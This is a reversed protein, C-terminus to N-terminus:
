LYRVQGEKAHFAAAVSNPLKKDGAQLYTPMGATGGSPPWTTVHRTTGILWELLLQRCKNVIDQSDPDKYLNTKELPDQELNYLEGIDQNDFTEPQYHVFRWPGWRLSKSWPNETVGVKHVPEDQGELLSRISVGDVTEMGPLDCLESITPAIDVNEVFHDCTRGDEGMGPVRWIFPIRCVSDSCIGPAKELVGYRGHYAGHDATYIVITNEALGSKDLFDLLQGVAYDVHTICALYGRWLRRVFSETDRPEFLGQAKSYYEVAEQFHPPRHSIDSGYTEPLDLNEDYMDWFQKAPTFCQHPRTFSVHMCFPRDGCGRMFDISERATWGEQSHEFPLDSPRTDLNNTEELGFEPLLLHDEKERLGLSTLYRMYPSTLNVEHEQPPFIEEHVDMCVHPHEHLWNCPDNPLHLKGIAATMYGNERFHSLFSPLNDPAPGSLGYYGHNHPYQGSLLSVRSPTCITNQTVAQSFRVGSSALRDLNPTIAQPHGAAGLCDAIHQDSMIQVVNLRSTTM